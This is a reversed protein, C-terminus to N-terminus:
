NVTWNNNNPNGTSQSLLRMAPSVQGASGLISSMTANAPSVSGAMSKLASANANQDNAMTTYGWADRMANTQLQAADKDGMMVTSTQLDRASGQNMVVGNAGLNARQMGLLQATKLDQNQVAIVGNDEAVSAKDQDLIANNQAVSAQYDLSSRQASSANYAGVAKTGAGMLALLPNTGTGM